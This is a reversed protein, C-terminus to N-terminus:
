NQEWIQSYSWNREQIYMMCGSVSQVKFSSDIEMRFFAFDGIGGKEFRVIAGEPLHWRTYDQASSSPLFLVATLLLILTFYFFRTTRM